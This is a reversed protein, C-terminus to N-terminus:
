LAQTGVQNLDAEHILHKAESAAHDYDDPIIWDKVEDRDMMGDGNKDRQSLFQSREDKVWDPEEDGEEKSTYMDGSCEFWCEGM